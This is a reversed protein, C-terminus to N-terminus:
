SCTRSPISGASHAWAGLHGYSGPTHMGTSGQPKV